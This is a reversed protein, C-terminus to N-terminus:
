ASGCTELILFAVGALPTPGSESVKHGFSAAVEVLEGNLLVFGGTTALWGQSGHERDHAKDHDDSEGSPPVWHGTVEENWGIIIAGDGRCHAM